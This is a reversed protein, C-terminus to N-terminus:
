ALAALGDRATYVSLGRADAVRCLPGQGRDLLAVKTGAAFRGDAPRAASEDYFYPQAAKVKHTFRAPPRELRNAEPLMASAPLVKAKPRLFTGM